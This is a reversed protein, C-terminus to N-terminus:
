DETEAIGGEGSEQKAGDENPLAAVPMYDVDLAVTDEEETEFRNDADVGGDSAFREAAVTLSLEQAKTQEIFDLWLRGPFEEPVTELPNGAVFLETRYEESTGPVGGGFYLKLEGDEHVNGEEDEFWLGEENQYYVSLNYIYAGDTNARYYDLPLLDRINNNTLDIKRASRLYQIGEISEIPIYPEAVQTEDPDAEYLDM